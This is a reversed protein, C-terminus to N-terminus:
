VKFMNWMLFIATKIGKQQMKSSQIKISDDISQVEVGNYMFSFKPENKLKEFLDKEYECSYLLSALFILSTYKVIQKM